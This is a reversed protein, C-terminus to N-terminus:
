ADPHTLRLEQFLNCALFGLSIQKESLVNRHFPNRLLLLGSPSDPVANKIGYHKSEIM